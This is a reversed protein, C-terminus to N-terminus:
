RPGQAPLAAAEHAAIALLPPAPNAGSWGAAFDAYAQRAEATQGTAALARALQLRALVHVLNVPQNGRHAMLDRFGTVAIQPEKIQLHALGRVYPLWPGAAREYAAANGLAMLAHQGDANALAVAAKLTPALGGVVDPAPPEAREYAAALQAAQAARGAFAAALTATWTTEGGTSTKLAQQLEELARPQDGLLADGLAQEAILSGAVDIVHATRAGAIAQAYLARSAAVNGRALAARAAETVVLYGDPRAEAARLHEAIAGEDRDLFAVDVALARNFSADLGKATAERLVARAEDIRDLILLTRALQQYPVVSNPGLAVATRAEQIAEDFQNLRFYTSSLNLHPVWDQAYTSAWLRYAGVAEDLRGTVIYHYHSEIFLREPESLSESREYARKIYAQARELDKLNTYIAALRASALAFNPDLDLAHEFLPIAQLDGTKVRTEVGMSYAKLAELSPTTADPLPVNFRQISGISEGLRERLRAAAGGVSALVDTKSAAQTQERALTEGTRCAEAELTIVYASALPSISGLLISKVGMRQCLERALNATVPENPSREMRQLGARVLPTPAVHVYPSQQLQIELADRLAGDFVAEGTTNTFDALLLPERATLALTRGRSWSLAGYAGLALVIVAIAILGVDRINPAEFVRALGSSGFRPTYAPTKRYVDSDLTLGSSPTSKAAYERGAISGSQVARLHAAVEGASSPRADRDKELLRALLSRLEAPLANGAPLELGAPRAHLIADVIATTSRGDFARRGTLMEHLVLGFSFLDTRHDLPDGLAQEPSMYLVTGVAAGPNTLSAPRRTELIPDSTEVMAALGFDLLKADGRATVFINAPKLDRHIIRARHAADLADAIQVGLGVVTKVPLPGAAMADLLTQGRLLEMVLYPRNEVEPAQGVDYITCINPHNLASAARAEREFRLLHEQSAALAPSLLKLAVDRRLKRDHAQYVEGMSGAGLPQVIEFRDAICTGPTLPM